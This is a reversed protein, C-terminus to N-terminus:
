NRQAFKEPNCGVIYYGKANAMIADDPMRFRVRPNDRYSSLEAKIHHLLTKTGGGTLIVNAFSEFDIKHSRLNQVLSEAGSQFRENVFGTIEFSETNSAVYFFKANGQEDVATSKRIQYEVRQATLYESVLISAKGDPTKMNQMDTVIGDYVDYMSDKLEFVKEMRGNELLTVDSSGMGLDIVLSKSNALEQAGEKPRGDDHFALYKTTAIPQLEVIIEEIKFSIGNIKHDGQLSQISRFAEERTELNQYQKGPIGTVVRVIEGDEKIHKFVAILFMRRFDPTKYRSVNIDLSYRAGEGIDGVVLLEGNYEFCEKEHKALDGFVSRDKYYSEERITNTYHLIGMDSKSKVSLNGCDISIVRIIAKTSMINVHQFFSTAPGEQHQPTENHGQQVYIEPQYQEPQYNQHAAQQQQYNMQNIYQAYADQQAYQQQYAPYQPYHASANPYGYPNQQAPHQQYSPYQQYNMPNNPNYGNPPHQYGPHGQQQGGSAYNVNSNQQDQQHNMPDNPNASGDPSNQHGPHEQQQNENVYDKNTNEQEQQGQQHQENVDSM